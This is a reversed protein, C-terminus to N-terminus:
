ATATMAVRQGLTEGLWRGLALAPTVSMGSVFGQGSLTAGGIAEGVAYLGPIATDDARCAQLRDNVRIGVPTKLVMGNMRIARFRPGRIPQPCHTRGMPDPLLGLCARNYAEFSARIADADMGTEAALAAIGNAAVFSPHTEWASTLEAETWGPLLPPAAAAIADDYVCWFSLDPLGNL